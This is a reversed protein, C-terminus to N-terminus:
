RLLLIKETLKDIFEHLYEPTDTYDPEIWWSKIIGNYSYEVFYDYADVCTGCGFNTVNSHLLEEPFYDPLDNILEFLSNDLEVFNFEEQNLDDVSDEFLKDETLKFVDICAEGINCHVYAYHGFILYNEGTPVIKNDTNDDDSSCSLLIFFAALCTLYLNKM